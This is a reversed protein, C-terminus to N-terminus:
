AKGRVRLPRAADTAASIKAALGRRAAIDEGTVLSVDLFPEVRRGTRLFNAETLARGWGDLWALLERRGDESGAFHVLLDLDSGSEATANKTSGYVWMGRVGPHAEAVQDAIREAMALRWEWHGESGDQMGHPAGPGPVLSAAPPTGAERGDAECFIGVAEESDANMLVRLHLGGRAAPVDIVRVVGDLHELDPLLETLHSPATRLFGEDFHNDPEDPYLPLYRIGGEVLDQFFHTGFSLDPAYNGQKRAIEVLLSTNSIDAYGVNVGLRIDGRSGWRGPGMLVFQRKPLVQNLRGVARGVDRLADLSGLAAYADPDVYVIHTVADVRGNSVFRRASFLIRDPPVDRPIAPPADLGGYSQPRCQLLYLSTGDSAFEVDVPMGLRDQLVRLLTAMRAMFTTESALGEFTFVSNGASVDDTLGSPRRLRDGDVLSVMRRILPLSEGCEALLRAVPITEFENTELSILDVMKPSYRVVEDVSANVRLGPQGPALLVPYDDSLRDVARTGLGPVLRVLGDERRIRPSWRFENNTFAVGSFAPLFYPGVRTGVVEQIMIGMEEHVDLLNREARYEIPDPGFMSAYVEAIADQLAGLREQKTGQNALFLSKYKGSFASGVRDELLSSSRVILPVSGLDELVASLGKVLEPPFAASKFVQVVHPYQQRVQEIDLYKRDHVDDLNNYRVFSVIADSTLYWTRPVKIDRLISAFEASAEVVKRALFLGASKGGLRGHSRPPHLVHQVLEQFDDITALGKAINIFALQDTFLRRLLAVRITTQISEPLDAESLGLVKFRELAETIDSLSSSQEEVTNVLFGVREKGLWMQVYGLIEQPTCNAEAIAFVQDAPVSPQGPAHRLPRNEDEGDSESGAAKHLQEIGRVGKWRLLSLMKGTLRRFLQPDSQSLFDLIVRWDGREGGVRAGAGGRSHEEAWGRQLLFLGVRDALTELLQREEPLFPGDGVDPRREVYFVSLDGVDQDGVRIRARQVWSSTKFDPLRYTQEGIRLLPRCIGPYQWGEPIARLVRTFVEDVPADGRGLVEMVRYLCRLEKAREQLPGLLDDMHRNPTM